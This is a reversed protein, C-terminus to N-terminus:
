DTGADAPEARVTSAPCPEIRVPKEGALVALQRATAAQGEAYAALVRLMAESAVPDREAARAAQGEVIAKQMEALRALVEANSDAGELLACATKAVTNVTQLGAGLAGLSSCGALFVLPLFRKM